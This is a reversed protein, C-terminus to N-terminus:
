APLSANIGGRKDSFTVMLSKWECAEVSDINTQRYNQKM